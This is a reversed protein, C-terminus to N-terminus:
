ITIKIGGHLAAQRVDALLSEDTGQRQRSVTFDSEDVRDGFFLYCRDSGERNSIWVMGAAERISRHVAEAWRMTQHYYRAPAKIIQLDSVKWGILNRQFLPVVKLERRTELIAHALM